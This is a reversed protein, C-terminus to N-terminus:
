KNILNKFNTEIPNFRSDYNVHRNVINSIGAYQTAIFPISTLANLKYHWCKDNSINIEHKFHLNNLIKLHNVGKFNYIFM